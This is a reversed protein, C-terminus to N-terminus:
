MGGGPDCVGDREPDYIPGDINLDDPLTMSGTQWGIFGGTIERGVPPELVAVEIGRKTIHVKRLAGSNVRDLLELCKAKFETATIVVEGSVHDYTM